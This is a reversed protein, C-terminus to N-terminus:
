EIDEKAWTVRKPGNRKRRARGLLTFDFEDSFEWFADFETPETVREVWGPSERGVTQPEKAKALDVLWVRDDKVLFNSRRNEPGNRHWGTLDHFRKVQARCLEKEEATSPKHAEEIYDLLFGIVRGSETVLGLFEPALDKGKCVRYARMETEIRLPHCAPTPWYKLVM